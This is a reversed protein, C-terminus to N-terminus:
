NISLVRFSILPDVSAPIVKIMRLRVFRGTANVIDIHHTGITMGGKAAETSGNVLNTWIQKDSGAVDITYNAVLQGDHVVDESLFIRDFKTETPLDLIIQGNKAPWQAMRGSTRAIECESPVHPASSGAGYRRHREVGFAAAAAAM